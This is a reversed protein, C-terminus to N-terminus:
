GVSAAQRGAKSPPVYKLLKKEKYKKKEMISILGEGIRYRGDEDM